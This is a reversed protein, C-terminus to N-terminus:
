QEIEFLKDFCTIELIRLFENNPSTLRISVNGGKKETEKKLILFYRLGSSCIYSLDSCDLVINKDANEILPVIDEGFEKSALTDLKGSLIATWTNGINSIRTEM